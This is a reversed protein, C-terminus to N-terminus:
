PAVNILWEILGAHISLESLKNCDWIQIKTEELSEIYKQFEPTPTHTVFFFKDYYADMNSLRDKYENFVNMNSESKVQVVAKENTVPAILEIDITKITKGLLGARSWSAARFILDVFIEFDKPNLKKILKGIKEQLSRLDQEVEELEKSTTGNIKHLLYEKERVSCIAGRYGEVKTLRGSLYQKFLTKGNIDESKWGSITRREKTMDDNLIIEKKAYCYRLIGNYFTIWMTTEPEEYFKQVQNRHNTTASKETKYLKKIEEEVKDWNKAICLEHNIERYDLKLSNNKEICDKEFSGQRGLKVFLIKEPEHKIDM